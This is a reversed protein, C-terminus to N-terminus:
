FIAIPNVPSGTGGKVFLPAVVLQFEWRGLEACTAALADFDANDLLPLGMYPIATSHIPMAPAKYQDQGPAEMLDWGLLAANTEYLFELTSAHLGPAQWVPEYNPNQGWFETAGCRVLVADGAEPQVGEAAAIDALEWGHVPEDLRVYDTDRHRPVDYLVGRTVIGDRWFDVSNNKAGEETVDSIPRGNYLKGDATFIHCLADIHTNAFGHYNVGIYDSCAMGGINMK